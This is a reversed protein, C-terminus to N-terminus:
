GTPSVPAGEVLQSLLRLFQKREDESLATLLRANRDAVIGFLNPMLAQGAETLVVRHARRSTAVPRREVLGRAGLADLARSVTYNALRMRAALGTQTEGDAESLTMLMIFQDLTLDEAALDAKMAEDLMASLRQIMWGASTTRTLHATESLIERKTM